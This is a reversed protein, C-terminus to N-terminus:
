DTVFGTNQSNNYKYNGWIDFGKMDYKPNIASYNFEYPTYKGMNSGRYTFYLKKLTLKGAGQVISNPTGQCLSYDYQFNATKIPKINNNGIVVPDVIYGNADTVEPLSYLRISKLYKQATRINVNDASLADERNELDFFAVHTKTIIKDLYKIEKTGSIVSGRKNITKTNLVQNYTAENQNYPIRWNFSANPTSYRFM